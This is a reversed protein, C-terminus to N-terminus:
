KKKPIYVTHNPDHWIFRLVRGDKIGHLRLKGTIRLSFIQDCDPLGIEELRKQADKSCNEVSIFHSNNGSTRGGAAQQIEAWTMTEFNCLSDHILQIFDAPNLKNWGWETHEKDIKHFQWAPCQKDYSDPSQKYKVTKDDSNPSQKQKVAKDKSPESNWKPSKKSKVM